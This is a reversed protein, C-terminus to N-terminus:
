MHAKRTDRLFKATFIVGRCNVRDFLNFLRDFEIEDDAFLNGFDPLFQIRLVLVQPFKTSLRRLCTRLFLTWSDVTRRVACFILVRGHIIVRSVWRENVDSIVDNDVAIIPRKAETFESSKGLM